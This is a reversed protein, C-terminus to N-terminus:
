RMTKQMNELMAIHERIHERALKAVNMHERNRSNSQLYREQVQLLDRHGQLQAELYARDFEAGPQQSQMKQMMDRAGADMPMSGPMPAASQGGSSGASSTAAPEMMSRLVESLITQEQVEFGAFRKLDENRAKTMAIRSTEMAVMGMQMTQQMHQMEAQGMQGTMSSKQNGAAAGPQAAPSSANTQALAPMAILAAALGGLFARREM